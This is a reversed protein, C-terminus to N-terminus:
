RLTSFHIELLAIEKLLTYQQINQTVLSYMAIYTGYLVHSYFLECIEEKPGTVHLGKLTVPKLEMVADKCTNTTDQSSFWAPTCQIPPDPLHKNISPYLM